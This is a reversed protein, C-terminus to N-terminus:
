KQIGLKKKLVRGLSLAVEYSNWKPDGTIYVKNHTAVDRVVDPLLVNVIKDVTPDDAVAQRLNYVLTSRVDEPDILLPQNNCAM